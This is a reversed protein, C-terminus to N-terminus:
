AAPVLAGDVVVGRAGTPTRAFRRTRPRRSTVVVTDGDTDLEWEDTDVRAPEGPARAVALAPGCLVLDHPALGAERLRAAAGPRAGVVRVGALLEAPDVRLEGLGDLLAPTLGLVADYPLRRLFMAVRAAEGATADACSLQAGALMTGVVLPWFQGAESLMSCHLVRGGPGIGLEAVVRAGARLDRDMEAQSIPWAVVRTGDHYSGVGWLPADTTEGTVTV